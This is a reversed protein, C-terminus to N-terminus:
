EGEYWNWRGSDIDAHDDAFAAPNYNKGGYTRALEEPTSDPVDDFCRAGVTLVEETTLEGAVAQQKLRHTEFSRFSNEYSFGESIEYGTLLSNPDYAVGAGNQSARRQAFNDQDFNITEIVSM